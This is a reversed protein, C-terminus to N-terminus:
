SLSPDSRNSQEDSPPSSLPPPLSLPPPSLPLSLPLPSNPVSMPVLLLPVFDPVFYVRFLFGFLLFSSPLSQRPSLVSCGPFQYIHNVGSVCTGKSCNM